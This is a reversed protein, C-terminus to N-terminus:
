VQNEPEINLEGQNDGPSAAFYSFRRARTMIIRDAM